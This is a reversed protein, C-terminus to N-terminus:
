WVQSAMCGYIFHTSHTTLYFVEKWLRLHHLIMKTNMNVEMMDTFSTNSNFGHVKTEGLVSIAQVFPLIM